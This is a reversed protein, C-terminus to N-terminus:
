GIRGRISRYVGLAGPLPEPIPISDYESGAEVYEHAGIDWSAGRATGLIDDSFLGSGPDAVGFDRAGGDTSTLAYDDAAVFGFTQGTRSNTGPATADSSANNSDSGSWSWDALFGYQSCGSALCNKYIGDYDDDPESFGISCNVATCNYFYAGGSGGFRNFGASNTGLWDVVICNWVYTNPGDIRFALNRYTADNAGRILLGDAKHNGGSVFVGDHADGISLHSLQLGSIQTYPVSINLINGGTTSSLRYKNNDWQTGARHTNDARIKIYRTADTVWGDSPEIYVPVVTDAAGSTACVVEEIEDATVLNRARATSWANLSAYAADTGSLAPTTGDGGSSGPNVYRTVTTAM